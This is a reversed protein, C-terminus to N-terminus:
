HGNTQNASCTLGQLKEEGQRFIEIAAAWQGRILEVLEDTCPKGSREAIRRIEAETPGGRAIHWDMIQAYAREFRGVFEQPTV